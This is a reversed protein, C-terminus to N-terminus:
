TIDKTFYVRHAGTPDTFVTFKHGAIEDSYLRKKKLFKSSIAITKETIEPLRIALIEQKNKLQKDTQPVNFMLEDTAFYERYAVGEGYDREHGTYPSLVKTEPHRAKWEGWTTNVVNLYDLQIGKGVLPGLVPTGWLTNWLSQTDQDYMLKNSRYLFGSTGLKYEKDGYKTRYMIVTGCLTCYVGAIPTDGIRDTFLEHWALIRKPYARVDGNISVGFVINDDELYDAEEVSIMKPSRLPPIGDQRVGGWRVEDLRITALDSRNVFYRYFRPDISRHLVAKFEFYADGYSPEKNWIYEFWKNFNFAYTKGTKKQLIALLQVTSKPHRLFYLSEVALIEFEEKWNEQIYDLATEHVNDDVSQFLDLFYQQESKDNILSNDQSFGNQFMTILVFVLVSRLM